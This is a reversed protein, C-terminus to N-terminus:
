GELGIKLNLEYSPIVKGKRLNINAEGELSQVGSTTVEYEPQKGEMKFGKFEQDLFHRSWEKCDKEEWHWQNVNRGQM